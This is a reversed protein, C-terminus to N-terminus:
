ADLEGSGDAAVSSRASGEATSSGRTTRSLYAVLVATVIAPIAMIQFIAASPWSWDVLVGVALPMVIIGVRGVGIGLGMATTRVAPAFLVVGLSYVCVIVACQCLGLVPALLLSMTLSTSAASFAVMMVASGISFGIALAFTSFRSSLLVIVGGALTAGLSLLLVGNIGGSSSMGANVLLKPLWMTSFYYSSVAFLFMLVVAVMRPSRLAITVVPASAVVTRSNSVDRNAVRVVPSSEIRDLLRALRRQTEATNRSALFDPTEPIGVAVLVAVAATLVAGLVFASAWGTAAMLAGAAAGGVTSGLPLGISLVGLAASRRRAPSYEGVVIPLVPLISGMGIGALLRYIALDTPGSAAASALLFVAIVVLSLLLLPRRGFRDSLPALLLAGIAMGVPGIALLFGIQTGSLSWQDALPIVALTMSLLDYGEAMNILICIGLVRIQFRSVPATDLRDRATLM